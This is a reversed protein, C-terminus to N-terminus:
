LNQSPLELVIPCKVTKNVFHNNKFAPVFTPLRKLVRKLEKELSNNASSVEFSGVEGFTNIKLIVNAKITSEAFVNKDVDTKINKHIMNKMLFSKLGENFLLKNSYYYFKGKEKHADKMFMISNEVENTYVKLNIVNHYNYITEYYQKLSDKSSIKKYDKIEYRKYLKSYVRWHGVRKGKYVRGTAEIKGSKGYVIGIGDPVSDKYTVVRAGVFINDEFLRKFDYSVLKGSGQKFGIKRQVEGNKKYIDSAWVLKGKHYKKEQLLEGTPYLTKILGHLKTSGLFTSLEYKFGNVGGIKSVGKVQNNESDYYFEDIIQNEFNYTKLEILQSINDFLANYVLVGEYYRKCIGTKKGDIFNVEQKYLGDPSKYIWKGHKKGFQYQGSVVIDKKYYENYVGHKINKNNKLVSYKKKTGKFGRFKETINKTEVPEYENQQSYVQSIFLFIIILLQKM